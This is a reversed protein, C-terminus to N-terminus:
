RAAVVRTDIRRRLDEIEACGFPCLRGLKQLQQRALEIQGLEVYLEGLYENAGRHDPDIRLAQEYYALSAEFRDLKRHAYGLYNLVDPDPGLSLLLDKLEAIANAFAGRTSSSSRAKIRHGSLRRSSAFSLITTPLTSAACPM